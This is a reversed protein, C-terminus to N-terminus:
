DDTLIGRVEKFREEDNEAYIQTTNLNSHGLIDGVTKIDNTERLMDSAFTSRLKHPTIKSEKKPNSAAMYKKVMLQISRVSIREGDRNLFLADEYSVPYYTHRYDLYEQICKETKDGIYVNQQKRGKRRIFISHEIFDIDNINIGVLESVRIGTDLFLQIIAEDRIGNKKHYELQRKNLGDGNKVSSLLNAKEDSKLRIVKKKVRKSHDIAKVPNWKLKGATIFYEYMSSITSIYHDITTESSKRVIKKDNEVVEYYRLYHMFDSIDDTDISEMDSLDYNKIEKGNFYYNSYLYEFFVKMNYAYSLMTHSTLRQERAKFYRQCFEPLIKYLDRIKKKNKEDVEDIYAMDNM